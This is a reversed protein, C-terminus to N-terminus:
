DSQDFRMFNASSRSSARLSPLFGSQVAQGGSPGLDNFIFSEDFSVYADALEASANLEASMLM